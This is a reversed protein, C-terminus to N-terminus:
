PWRSPSSGANDAAEQLILGWGGPTSPVRATGCGTARHLAGADQMIAVSRGANGGAARRGKANLNQATCVHGFSTVVGDAFPAAIVRQSIHRGSQVFVPEEPLVGKGRHMSTQIAAIATAEQHDYLEQAQQALPTENNQETM